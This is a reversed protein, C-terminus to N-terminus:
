LFMGKRKKNFKFIIILILTCGSAAEALRWGAPEKFYVRFTGEYEEPLRVAIRNNDDSREVRFNEGTKLDEAVYGPYYYLPLLAEGQGDKTRCSLTVTLYKKEFSDIEVGIGEPTQLAETAPGWSGEYLYEGSFVTNSEFAKIDYALCMDGRYLVSYILQTGQMVALLGILVMGAAATKRGYKETVETMVLIGLVCGFIGAMTLMRYPFQIKGLLDGALPFLRNLKQYPFVTSAMFIFLSFFFICQAAAKGCRVFMGKHYMLVATALVILGATGVSKPFKDAITAVAGWPMSLTGNWYVAFLEALGAGWTQFAPEMGRVNNVVFDEGMYQLFPVLFWLNLLITIVFIKLFYILRNKHPLKKLNALGLLLIALASLFCTLVHTQILGTFGIVPAALHSPPIKEEKEAWFGYWLGLAALPLFIMASYEGVAARVYICSLRYPLLTYLASGFLAIRKDGSMKLFSYYASAATALNVAGIFCKYANQVSVGVLRLLAPFLLLQDGYMVSVPYGWGNFWGPQIRVPFDGALLGDKLGEIRFLHFVLDHGYLLYEELLGLSAAGGIILIGLAEGSRKFGRKRFIIVFAIINLVLLEVATRFIQYAGSNPATVISVGRVAFDEPYEPEIVIRVNVAEENVYIRFSESDRVSSLNVHDSYLDRPLGDRAQAYCVANGNGEEYNFAIEYIGKPVTLEDTFIIEKEEQYERYYNQFAYSFIGEKLISASFLILFLIELLCVGFYCGHKKIRLM